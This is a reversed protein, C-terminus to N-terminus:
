GSAPPEPHENTPLERWESQNGVQLIIEVALVADKRTSLAKAKDLVEERWEILAKRGEQTFWAAKPLQSSTPHLRTNHGEVRGVTARNHKKPAMTFKMM